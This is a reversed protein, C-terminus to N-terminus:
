FKLTELFLASQQITGAERMSQLPPYCGGAAGSELFCVTSHYVDMYIKKYVHVSDGRVIGNDRFFTFLRFLFLGHVLLPAAM